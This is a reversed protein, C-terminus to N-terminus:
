GGQQQKRAAIRELAADRLKISVVSTDKRAEYEADFMVWASHQEKKMRGYEAFLEMQEYNVSFNQPMMEAPTFQLIDDCAQNNISMMALGLNTDLQRLLQADLVDQQYYQEQSNNSTSNGQQNNSMGSSRAIRKMEVKGLMRNFYQLTQEDEVRFCFKQRFNSLCTNVADRQGSGGAALFSSYSQASVIGCCGSSRAKDWFNLDSDAGSLTIANQFEDCMFFILRDQNWDKQVRRQQMINFMLLKAWMYIVRATSGYIPLPLDVLIINGDLISKMEVSNANQECFGRQIEPTTFGSLVTSVTSEILGKTKADLSEFHLKYKELASELKAAKMLKADDNNQNADYQYKGLELRAQDQIRKRYEPVFIYKYLASLSYENGDVHSLVEMSSVCLNVANDHWYQSNGGGGGDLQFASRMFSGVKEPSLGACLNIGKAKQGVGVVTVGRLAKEAYFFTEKIFDSKIDLILGGCDQQMYQLLLPCIIRSTKGSGVGGFVVINQALDKEGLFVQRNATLGKAHGRQALVGTSTGIFLGVQGQQQQQGITAVVEPAAKKGLGVSRLMNGIMKALMDGVPLYALAIAAATSVPVLLEFMKLPLYLYGVFWGIGALWLLSMIQRPRTWIIIKKVLEFPGYGILLAPLVALWVGNAASLMVDLPKKEFAQVVAPVGLAKAAFVGAFILAQFIGVYYVFFGVMVDWKTIPVGLADPDAIYQEWEKAKWGNQAIFYFGAFVIGALMFWGM